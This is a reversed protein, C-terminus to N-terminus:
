YGSWYEQLNKKHQKREKQWQANFLFLVSFVTYQFEEWLLMQPPFLKIAVWVAFYSTCLSVIRDRTFGTLHHDSLVPHWLSAQDMVLFCVCVGGGLKVMCPEGGVEGEASIVTLIALYPDRPFSLDAVRRPPSAAQQAPSPQVSSSPSSHATRTYYALSLCLRCIEGGVRALEEM